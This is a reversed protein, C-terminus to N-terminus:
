SPWSRRPAPMACPIHLSLPEQYVADTSSRLHQICRPSNIKPSSTVYFLTLARPFMGPLYSDSMLLQLPTLERAKYSLCLRGHLLRRGATEGYQHCGSSHSLCILPESTFFLCDLTGSAPALHSSPPELSSTAAALKGAILSTHLEASRLRLQVSVAFAVHLLVCCELFLGYQPIRLQLLERRQRHLRISPFAPSNPPKVALQLYISISWNRKAATVFQTSRARATPAQAM